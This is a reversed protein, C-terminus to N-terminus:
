LQQYQNLCIKSLTNTFTHNKLLRLELIKSRIHIWNEPEVDEISLASNDFIIPLNDGEPTQATLVSNIQNGTKIDVASYQNLFGLLKFREEDALKPRNLFYDDINVRGDVLPLLIRNIYRLRILRIRVPSALQVYTTWAKKIQPLYKDLSTYPALRNFSFGQGRFQVVQKGDKHIFQLGQVGERISLKPPEDIKAELQHEQIYIHRFKPYGKNLEKRAKAEMETMKLSPPLDCEIDLVAEIIPPTKLNLPSEIMLVLITDKQVFKFLKLDM